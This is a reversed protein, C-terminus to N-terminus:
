KMLEALREFYRRVLDKDEDRAGARDVAEEARRRAAALVDRLPRPPERSGARGGPVLVLVPGKKTVEEGPGFLPVVLKDEFAVKFDPTPPPASEEDGGDTSPPPEHPEPGDQGGAPPPPPATDPPPPPPEGPPPPATDPPPPTDGPGGAGGGGGEADSGSKDDGDQPGLVQFSAPASTAVGGGDRASLRASVTHRGPRLLTAGDALLRLDVATAAGSTEEPSLSLTRGPDLPKGDLELEVRYTTPGALDVTPTGTVMVIVPEDGRFREYQPTVSAQAGPGRAEEPPAPEPETAEEGRAEPDRPGQEAPQPEHGEDKPPGVEGTSSTDADEGPAPLPADKGHGRGLLGLGPAPLGPLENALWAGALLVLTVLALRRLRRLVVIGPRAPFADTLGPLAVGLTREADALAHGALPSTIRGEAIALATAARDGLGLRRDLERAVDGQDVRRLAGFATAAGGCVLLLLVVAALPAFPLPEIGVWPAAFQFLIVAAGASLVVLATTLVARGARFMRIRWTARGLAVALTPTDRASKPALDQEPM